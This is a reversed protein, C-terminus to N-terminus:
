PKPIRLKLVTRRDTTRATTRATQPTTRATRNTQGPQPQGPQPPDSTVGGPPDSAVSNGERLAARSGGRLLPSAPSHGFLASALESDSAASVFNPIFYYAETKCVPTPSQLHPGSMVASPSPEIGGATVVCTSSIASAGDSSATPASTLITNVDGGACEALEAAFAARSGHDSVIILRRAAFSAATSRRFKNRCAYM